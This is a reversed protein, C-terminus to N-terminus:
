GESATLRAVLGHSNLLQPLVVPAAQDPAYYVYLPVGSRGFKALYHSIAPNKRTWDGVMYATHSAAFARRVAPSDLVLTENVKCTICWAASMDVLVPRGEARLTALRQQSFPVRGKVSPAALTTAGGAQAGVMMLGVGALAVGRRAKTPLRGHLVAFAVLSLAALLLALGIVSAQHGFVWVLWAVSAYMPIALVQRLRVMWPGPKPLLRVASPLMTIAFTLGVFPAAFGLGLGAFIAVSALGPQAIAVGVATAMFPATCPAAVVVALVGTLFANAYPGAKMGGSLGLSGALAQLSGGVEFLGSMNFAVLLLLLSLTAIILPSQLQFGWGVASGLARASILALALVLFSVLAGVGYVLAEKRALAKDHGARTLALLKMSLIPFVCPMLNLILGGAFALVILVLLGGPAAPSAVAARVQTRVRYASGDALKLVFHLGSKPWAAGAEKVRLTLGRGGLSVDQAATPDILGDGEAFLYAGDVSQKDPAPAITV